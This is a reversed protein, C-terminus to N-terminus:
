IIYFLILLNVIPWSLLTNYNNIICVCYWLRGQIAGVLSLHTLGPKHAWSDWELM